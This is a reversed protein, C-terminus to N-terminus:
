SAKLSRLFLGLGGAVLVFIVILDFVSLRTFILQTSAVVGVVLALVSGAAYRTFKRVFKVSRLEDSQRGDPRQWAM